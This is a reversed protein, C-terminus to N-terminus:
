INNRNMNMAVCNLANMRFNNNLMCQNSYMNDMYNMNMNNMCNMNMNNKNMFNMNMDFPSMMGNNMMEPPCFNFIEFFGGKSRYIKASEEFSNRADEQIIYGFITINKLACKELEKILKEEEQPYNDNKTFLKGHAGADALHIIIKDGDGWSIKENAMKYAGAWDEPLDGGGYVDIKGLQETLDNVKDTLNICEHIDSHSDIPDRYFIYGYKFKKEPYLKRLEESINKSEQKAAIIYPGMSATADILFLLDIEDSGKSKNDSLINKIKKINKNGNSKNM